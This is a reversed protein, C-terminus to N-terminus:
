LTAPSVAGPLAGLLPPHQKATQNKMIKSSCLLQDLTLVYQEQLPGLGPEWCGCLWTHQGHTDMYMHTSPVPPLIDWTGDTEKHCPRKSLRSCPEHGTVRRGTPVGGGRRGVVSPNNAWTCGHRCLVPPSMLQGKSIFDCTDTLWSFHIRLDSSQNEELAILSKLWQARTGTGGGGGRKKKLHRAPRSSASYAPSAPWCAM